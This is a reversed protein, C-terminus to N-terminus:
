RTYDGSAEPQYLIQEICFRRIGAPVQWQVADGVRFGLLATGVPALISLKNHEPDADLPYVLQYEYLQADDLDRMRVTSNMTVVDPKVQQPAIIQARELEGRLKDLCEKDKPSNIKVTAILQMLRDYDNRTVYIKNIKM